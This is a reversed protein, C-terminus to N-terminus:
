FNGVSSFSRAIRDYRFFNFYSLPPLTNKMTPSRTLIGELSGTGIIWSSLPKFKMYITGFPVVSKVSTPLMSRLSLSDPYVLSLSKELLLSGLNTCFKFLQQTSGCSLSEGTRKRTMTQPLIGAQAFELCIIHSLNPEKIDQNWFLGVLPKHLNLWRVFPHHKDQDNFGRVNWFFINTCM